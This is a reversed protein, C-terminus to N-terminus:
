KTNVQKINNMKVMVPPRSSIPISLFIYLCINGAIANKIGINNNTQGKSRHVKGMNPVCTYYITCYIHIATQIHTNYRQPHTHM